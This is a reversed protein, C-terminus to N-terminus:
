SGPVFYHPVFSSANGTIPSPDERIGIGAAKDGIVWSGIVAHRGDFVPLPCAAQWIRAGSAGAEGAALLRVGDGERGHITKEVCAGPLDSRHFSAPLLHPHDPFMEWLIPLIAKNSLVMKWPPELFATRDALLHPAFEEQLLWEWPYLKFLVRIPREATDTFDRGNWGIEAIDLWQTAIGAQRCVDRMYDLTAFDEAEDLLGTFNVRWGPGMRRALDRWGAILREHISNFQDAGPKVEELWYWQVVAAEVLATPTDANYELMRAPGTGGWALDFRGFLGPDRRKWSSAIWPWFREPIFLRELDGGTVLRDVAGLCAEHLADTAEELADIEAATFSYCADERWYPRGEQTHFSLGLAEVKAEWGPRPMLPERQM